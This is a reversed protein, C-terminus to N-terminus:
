TSCCAGERLMSCVTTAPEEVASAEAKLRLALEAAFHHVASGVTDESDRFGDVDDSPYSAGRRTVLRIAFNYPSYLFATARRKVSVPHREAGQFFTHVMQELDPSRKAQTGPLEATREGKDENLGVSLFATTTAEIQHRCRLRIFQVKEPQNPGATEAVTLLVASYDTLPIQKSQSCIDRVDVPLGQKRLERVMLAAVNKTRDDDSSFLVCVPKM